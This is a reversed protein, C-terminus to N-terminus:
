KGSFFDLFDLYDKQPRHPVTSSLFSMPGIPASYTIPKINEQNYASYITRSNTLCVPSVRILEENNIENTFTGGFVEMQKISKPDYPYKNKLNYYLYNEPDQEYLSSKDKLFPHEFITIKPELNPELNKTSQKNVEINKRNEQMFLLISQLPRDLLPIKKAITSNIKPSIKKSISNKSSM